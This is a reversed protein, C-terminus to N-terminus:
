DALERYKKALVRGAGEWSLDEALARVQEERRGRWAEGERAIFRLEEAVGEVSPTCWSIEARDALDRFQRCVAPPSAIVPLEAAIGLRIAGSTGSNGTVYPFATADCGVKLSTILEAAETWQPIIELGFPHLRQLAEAEEISIGPAFLLCGWAAERAAEVVVAQNKWGFHFGASGVYYRYRGRQLPLHVVPSKALHTPVPQTLRLVHPLGQDTLGAAEEHVVLLDAGRFDPMGRERMIAFEEFTDHQTVVVKWGIRRLSLLTGENMGSSLAAQHNFHVIRFTGAEPGLFAGSAPWNPHPWEVVEISPDAKEVAWKLFHGYEAIGCHARDSTVLLVRITPTQM